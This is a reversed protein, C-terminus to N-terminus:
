QYPDRLHGISGLIWMVLCLAICGLGSYLNLTKTIVLVSFGVVLPILMALGWQAIIRQNRTM